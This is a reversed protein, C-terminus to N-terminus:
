LNAPKSAVSRSDIAGGKTRKPALEGARFNTPGGSVM